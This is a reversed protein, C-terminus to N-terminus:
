IKQQKPFFNSQYYGYQPIHCRCARSHIDMITLSCIHSFTLLQFMSVKWHVSAPTCARSLAKLIIIRTYVRGCDAQMFLIEDFVWARLWCESPLPHLPRALWWLSPSSKLPGRGKFAVGIKSCPFTWNATTFAGIMLIKCSVGVLVDAAVQMKYWVM